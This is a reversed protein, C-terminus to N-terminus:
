SAAGSRTGARSCAPGVPAVAAASHDPRIVTPGAPTRLRTPTTWRRAPWTPVTSLPGLASSSAPRYRTVM